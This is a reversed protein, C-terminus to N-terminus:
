IGFINYFNKTSYEIIDNVTCGKLLAIKKVVETVLGPHNEKGRHGEPALFPSDTEILFRDFPINKAVEQLDYSKPFTVIGSFSIIGGKDLIVKSDEWNYTSCHFVFNVNYKKIQDLIDHIPCNRSHVICIKNYKECLYLHMNLFDIQQEKNNSYYLDIGTEGFAIVKDQQKEMYILSDDINFKGCDNPHIGISSHIKIGPNKIGEKHKFPDGKDERLLCIDLLETVGLDKIIRLTSDLDNYFSLHAHSDIM